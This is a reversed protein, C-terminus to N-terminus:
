NPIGTLTLFLFNDEIKYHFVYRQDFRSLLKKLTFSGTEKLFCLSPPSKSSSMPKSIRSDLM